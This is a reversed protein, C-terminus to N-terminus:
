AVHMWRNGATTVLDIWRDPPRRVSRKGMRPRWGLTKKGWKGDSKQVIHYARIWKLKSIRQAIDVVKTRKRIEENRIRDRLSICLKAREM